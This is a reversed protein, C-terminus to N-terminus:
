FRNKRGNPEAQAKKVDLLANEFRVQRMESNALFIAVLIVDPPHDKYRTVEIPWQNEQWGKRLLDLLDRAQQLYGVSPDRFNEAKWM